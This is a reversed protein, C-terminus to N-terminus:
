ASDRQSRAEAARGPMKGDDITGPFARGDLNRLAREWAAFCRPHAHHRDSGSGDGTPAFEMEIEIEGARVPASCITCCAGEGPGGWTREPRRHPLKGARIAERAQTHLTSDDSPSTVPESRLNDAHGQLLFPRSMLDHDENM